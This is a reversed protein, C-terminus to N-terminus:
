KDNSDIENKLEEETIAGKITKIEEGDEDLLQITPLARVGLESARARGETTEIDVYEIDITGEFKELITDMAKCPGCWDATFKVIKSAKSM